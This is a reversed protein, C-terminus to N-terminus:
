RLYRNAAYLGVVVCGISLALSGVIYLLALGKQGGQFLQVAQLSFTSFTTFGGCFGVAALLYGDGKLLAISVGILLSGLGNAAMTAWLSSVGVLTALLSLSYRTVSGLAGGLAVLLLERLAGM